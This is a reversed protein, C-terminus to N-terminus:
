RRWPGKPWPDFTERHLIGGPESMTFPPTERKRADTALARFKETLAFLEPKLHPWDGILGKQFSAEPSAMKLSGLCAKERPPGPKM